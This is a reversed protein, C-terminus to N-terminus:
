SRRDPATEHKRRPDPRRTRTSVLLVAGAVIALVAAARLLAQTGTIVDAPAAGPLEILTGAVAVAIGGTAVLVTLSVGAAEGARSPDVAAQVGINPLAWGLGLAFGTLALLPIYVPWAEATSLALLSLGGFVLTAPILV